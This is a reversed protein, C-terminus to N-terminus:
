QVSGSERLLESAQERISERYADKATAYFSDMDGFSSVQGQECESLSEFWQQRTMRNRIAAYLKIAVEETADKMPNTAQCRKKGDTAKTSLRPITKNPM